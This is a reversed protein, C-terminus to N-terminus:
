PPAAGARETTLACLAEEQDAILASEALDLAEATGEPLLKRAWRLMPNTFSYLLAVAPNYRSVHVWSLVASIIISFFPSRTM